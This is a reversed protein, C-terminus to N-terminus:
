EDKEETKPNNRTKLPTRIIPKYDSEGSKAKRHDLQSSTDPVKSNTSEVVSNTAKGLKRFESETVEFTLFTERCNRCRRTRRKINYVGEDIPSETKLVATPLRDCKPCRM